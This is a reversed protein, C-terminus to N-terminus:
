ASLYGGHIVLEYEERQVVPKNGDHIEYRPDIDANGDDDEGEHDFQEEEGQGFRRQECLDPHLLYFGFYRLDLRLIRIIALSLSRLGHSEVLLFVDLRKGAYQEEDDM